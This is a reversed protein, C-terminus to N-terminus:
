ALTLIVPQHDSVQTQTDVTVDRIRSAIDGSVFIFDCCYSPRARIPRRTSASRRRTRCAPIRMSGPTSCRRRATPSRRRWARMSPDDPELNFDGTIITAAPRLFTQFPGGDTGTIRPDRAYGHGEAYIARLADVQAM